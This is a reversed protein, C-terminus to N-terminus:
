MYEEDVCASHLFNLPTLDQNFKGLTAIMRAKSAEAERFQQEARSVATAASDGAMQATQARYGRYGVSTSPQNDDQPPPVGGVGAFHNLDIFEDSTDNPGEDSSSSNRKDSLHLSVIDNEPNHVDRSPVDLVAHQYVTMESDSLRKCKTNRKHTTQNTGPGPQCIVKQQIMQQMAAVSNALSDIKTEVSWHYNQQEQRREDREKRRSTKVNVQVEDNSDSGEEPEDYQIPPPM